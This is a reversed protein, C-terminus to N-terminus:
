WAELALCVRCTRSCAASDSEVVDTREEKAEYCCLTRHPMERQTAGLKGWVLTSEHRSYHISPDGAVPVVLCVIVGMVMM